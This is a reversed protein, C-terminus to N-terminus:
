HRCISRLFRGAYARFIILKLLRLAEDDTEAEWVDMAEEESAYGHQELFYPMEWPCLAGICVLLLEIEAALGLETYRTTRDPLEETLGSDALMKRISDSDDRSAPWSTQGSNAALALQHLRRIGDHVMLSRWKGSLQKPVRLHIHEVRM